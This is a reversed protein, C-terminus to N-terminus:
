KAALAGSEIYKALKDVEALHKDVGDKVAGVLHIAMARSEHAKNAQGKQHPMWEAYATGPAADGEQALTVSTRPHLTGDPAIVSLNVMRDNWVYAVIAALPQTADPQLAVDKAHFWVIRGPAPSIM